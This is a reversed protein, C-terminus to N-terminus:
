RVRRLVLIKRQRLLRVGRPTTNYRIYLALAEQDNAPDYPKDPLAHPLLWPCLMVGIQSLFAALHDADRFFEEYFYEKCSIPFFGLDTYAKLLVEQESASPLSYNRRGFIEGLPYGDLNSVIEQIFIAEKRLSRLLSANLRPGRRSFAVNISAEPIHQLVDPNECGGYILTTNAPALREARLRATKLLEENADIGWIHSVRPALWCLAHGAGCGIDLVYSAPTTYSILLRDMETAPNEGFYEISAPSAASEYSAFAGYRRAPEIDFDFM